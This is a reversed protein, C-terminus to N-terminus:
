SNGSLTFGPVTWRKPVTVSVGPVFQYSEGWIAFPVSRQSADNRVFRGSLFVSESGVSSCLLLLMGAHWCCSDEFILQERSVNRRSRNHLARGFFRAELVPASNATTQVRTVPEVLEFGKTDVDSISLSARALEIFRAIELMNLLQVWWCM